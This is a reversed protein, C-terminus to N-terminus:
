WPLAASRADDAMSALERLAKIRQERAQGDPVASIFRALRAAARGADEGEGPPPANPDLGAGDGGQGLPPGVPAPLPAPKSYPLAPLDAWELVAEPEFGLDVLIKVANIKSDREANEAEEDEPVPSEYDFELGESGPFMPLFENNLAAKIRMLRPVILWRAFVYEAAQAVARNSDETDGLMPKPFGFAARIKDDALKSLEVFQMDKNTYNVDIWRARELIAVRHANAVGQHQERWRASMKDFEPDSLRNEVEIIGGPIAGNLFFNRNWQASYHEADIYSLVSQIPGMGRYPDLPNPRRVFIVDERRLPVKTGDPSSYVYGDIFNEASVVPQMKDPRVPWIEAPMNIRPNRAIVWWMEGTLDQHQQGAEFLANRTYFANPKNLVLLSPHAKIETRDDEGDGSKRYLKWEVAATGTALKDVIAFLTGVSGMAHLQAEVNSNTGVTAFLGGRGAPAMPAPIANMVRRVGVSSTVRRGIVTVFSM